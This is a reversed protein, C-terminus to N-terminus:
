GGREDSDRIAQARAMLLELLKAPNAAYSKPMQIADNGEFSAVTLNAWDNLRNMAIAYLIVGFTTATVTCFHIGHKGDAHQQAASQWDRVLGQRHLVTLDVPPNIGLQMLEVTQFCIPVGILEAEQGPNIHKHEAILMDQLSRYIVYHLHLQKSSMGKICDVFQMASDDKGDESRCAALIGGFYEACIEDDTFAGNWLIDRAVRMNAAKGDELSPTKATARDVIKQWGVARRRDIDKGIADLSPGFLQKLVYAAAAAGGAAEVIEGAM